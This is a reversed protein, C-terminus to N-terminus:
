LIRKGLVQWFMIGGLNKEIVYNSKLAISRKDDFTAFLKQASNYAYPAKVVDDWHYVFGSDKSLQTPLNKYGVSTKFTGSQYLGNNQESVNKWVRSYFAAGIILKAPDVRKKFLYQVTNDTSEPQSTDSYLATHHGTIKSYGNVLDYTM